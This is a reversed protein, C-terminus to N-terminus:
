IRGDEGVPTDILNDHLQQFRATFETFNRKEYPFNLFSLAVLLGCVSYSYNVSNNFNLLSSMLKTIWARSRVSM